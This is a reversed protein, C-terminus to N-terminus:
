SSTGSRRRKTSSRAMPRACLIYEKQKRVRDHEIIYGNYQMM